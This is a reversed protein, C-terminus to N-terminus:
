ITKYIEMLRKAATKINYNSKRIKEYNTNRNEKSGCKSLALIESACLKPSTKLDIFNISNFLNIENTITKSLFCTLGATQAEIGVLPLGEYLSPLLFVDMAQYLENVDTRKGLFLVNKSLKLKSVKFKINEELPGFGILLLVANKNKKYVENFIDILFEHNKQPVFRGVHGIVLTNDNIGLEKRKEKRITNNFKFKKVDIANNIIFYKKSNLIKKSFFWEGAKNSCAFYTNAFLPIFKKNINHLLAKFIGKDSSSNHAHAIIVKAKSMKAAILPFLVAASNMNCHVIQYNNFKIIKKLERIFKIPHKYYSTVNYINAGSKELEKQFCLEKPYINIFDFQYKSKDINRYYNILYSEIGGLAYKMGIQLIREM